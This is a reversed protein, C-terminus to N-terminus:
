NSFLTPSRDRSFRFLEEALIRTGGLKYESQRGYDYPWEVYELLLTSGQRIQNTLLRATGGSVCGEYDTTIVTHSDVRVRASRGPFDHKIVCWLLTKGAASVRNIMIAGSLDSRPNIHCKKQDTMQDVHCGVIWGVYQPNSVATQGTPTDIEGGHRNGFYRYARNTNSDRGVRAPTPPIADSNARLVVLSEGERFGGQLGSSVTSSSSSSQGSEPICGCLTFVLLASFCPIYPKM